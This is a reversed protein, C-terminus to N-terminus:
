ERALPWGDIMAGAFSASLNCRGSGSLEGFIMALPSFSSGGSSDGDPEGACLRSKNYATMHQDNLFPSSREEM